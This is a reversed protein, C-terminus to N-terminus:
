PGINPPNNMLFDRPGRTVTNGEFPNGQYPNIGEYPNMQSQARRARLAAFPGVGGFGGGLVPLGPRGFFPRPSSVMVPSAFEIGGQYTTYADPYTVVAEDYLPINQYEQVTGSGSSGGSTALETSPKNQEQSVQGNEASACACSVATIAVVALLLTKQM